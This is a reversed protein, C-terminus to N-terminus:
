VIKCLQMIKSSGSGYHSAAGAGFKINLMPPNNFIDYIIVTVVKVKRKGIVNIGMEIQSRSWFVTKVMISWYFCLFVYLMKYNYYLVM